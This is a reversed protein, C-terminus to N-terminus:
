EKKGGKKEEQDADLLMLGDIGEKELVENDVVIVAYVAVEEEDRGKEGVNESRVHHMGPGEYWAEGPRYVKPEEDNVQNLLAGRLMLGMIAADGHVHPPIAGGAPLTLLTSIYTKGPM